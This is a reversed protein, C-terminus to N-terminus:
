LEVQELRDAVLVLVGDDRRVLVLVRWGEQEEMMASSTLLLDEALTLLMSGDAHQGSPALYAVLNEGQRAHECVVKGALQLHDPSPRRFFSLRLAGGHPLEVIEAGDPLVQEVSSAHQSSRAAFKCQRDAGIPFDLLLHDPQEVSEAVGCLLAGPM